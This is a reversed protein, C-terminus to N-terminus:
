KKYAKTFFVQTKFPIEEWDFIFKRFLSVPMYHLSGLLLFCYGAPKFGVSHYWTIQPTFVDNNFILFRLRLTEEIIRCAHAEGWYLDKRLMNAYLRNRERTTLPFTSTELGNCHKYEEILTYDQEKVAGQYLELWSKITTNTIHDHVNLVTQAVIKRLASCSYKIGISNLITEISSFFCDGDKDSEYTEFGFLEDSIWHPLRYIIQNKNLNKNM